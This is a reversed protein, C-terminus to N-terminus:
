KPLPLGLASLSKRLREIRGPTNLSFNNPRGRCDIILGVTGGILNTAHDRNGRSTEFRKIVEAKGKGAGVDFNKTPEVTLQEAQAEDYPVVVMEGYPVTVDIGGGHVRVCPEGEKGVGVPAICTGCKVICDREFVERAADYLHESLVGLHPMMFISDVTLMTIGEPQYADMMMLASQARKPAHSLVGGSGIIMDLAMMNVLSAGAAKQDFIQGVDRQQSSGVLDRALSKHHEFALRLAERSVAHEILLDEYTQPITTPRIMKNRLRNRVEAPDIEFPLWRAINEVGAEKLVNCISYSMGLNASVTRNYIREGNGALFVSFVDTTAGGIDVGLVNIKENEAYEKLLKGVANPTAMVEESTWELLKSYGPAQQMVHQLFMEHIEERAPGLNEADLTPRLNDVVQLQISKGLVTGVAERAEKNGAYIVPLQMDGFRPKPDARRIVEAMELIQTRNGGDTGGSMLIIDPRLQRLREVRQYEKRGDNVALTDMLIAGAGLAAREASEASMEKVVGAVMMQLGGGASSTSVYLDAGDMEGVVGTLDEKGEKLKRWVLGDRILKRRGPNFGAPVGTESIEELETISNTVGLTVDEFPKEVTTPAEGRAVLRYEGTTPSKEILIAKTTTSGCDTAVIRRIDSAM